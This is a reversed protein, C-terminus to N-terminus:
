KQQLRPAKAGSHHAGDINDADSKFGEACRDVHAFFDYVVAIHDVLKGGLAGDKDVAYLLNRGALAHDVARVSDSGLNALLALQALQAHDVCGTRQHGLNVHFRDLKGAFTIREDQNSMAIVIFDDARQALGRQYRLHDIRGFVDVVQM